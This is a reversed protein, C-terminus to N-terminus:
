TFPRLMCYSWTRTIKVKKDGLSNEHNVDFCYCTPCVNTCSACSVCRKATEEWFGGSFSSRMVEGLNETNIAKRFKLKAKAAAKETRRFLGSKEALKRGRESGTEVHFESGADTFLLDFGTAESTGMSGCFCNEGAQACNLAFILASDRRNKYYHDLYGGTMVRDLVDLAHTDCPRVGFIIIKEAGKSERVKGGSFEMITLGDPHFFKKPPFETNVYRRLDADGWSRIRRFNHEGESEVPAFVSYHRLLLDMFESLDLKKIVYFVPKEM